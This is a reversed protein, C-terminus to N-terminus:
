NQIEIATTHIKKSHKQRNIWNLKVKEELHEIETHECFDKLKDLMFDSNFEKHFIEAPLFLVKTDEVATVALKRKIQKFGEIDNKYLCFGKDVLEELGFVGGKQLQKV